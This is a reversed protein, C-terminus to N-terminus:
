THNGLINNVADGFGASRRYVMSVAMRDTTLARIRKWSHSYPRAYARERLMTQIFDAEEFFARTL